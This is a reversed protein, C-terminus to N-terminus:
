LNVSVIKDDIVIWISHSFFQEGKTTLSIYISQLWFKVHRVSYRSQNDKHAIDGYLQLQLSVFSMKKIIFMKWGSNQQHTCSYESKTIKNTRWMHPRTMYVYNLHTPTLRWNLCSHVNTPFYTGNVPENNIIRSWTTSMYVTSWPQGRDSDVEKKSGKNPSFFITTNLM